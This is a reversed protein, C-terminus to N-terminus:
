LSIAGWNGETAREYSTGNPKLLFYAGVGGGVLLAGGAIWVWSPVGSKEVLLSQKPEDQLSVHLSNIQNDSVVVETRFALKGNASVFVSHAGSALLGEWLGTGVAKGDVQIVDVPEAVVRLRGEHHEPVLQASIKFARGGPLDPSTTYDAFGPKSLRIKHVGMDVGFAGALPTSGRPQEDIYVTAGAENTEIQLECVFAKITALLANADARESVTVFGGGEELYRGVLRDVEAYHRLNKQCAAMNWLLRPDKSLDYASKLKEFAGGFDGDDYLIRAAAYESKAAGTLSEALPLPASAPTPTVSGAPPVPAAAGPPASVASPAAAAAAPSASTTPVPKPSVASAAAHVPAPSKAPQASVVSSYLSLLVSGTAISRSSYRFM